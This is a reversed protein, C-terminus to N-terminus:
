EGSDMTVTIAGATVDKTFGFTGTGNFVDTAYTATFVIQSGDKSIEEWDGNTWYWWSLTEANALGEVSIVPKANRRFHKAQITFAVQNGDTVAGTAAVAVTRQAM